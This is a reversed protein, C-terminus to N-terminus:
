LRLRARIVDLLGVTPFRVYASRGVPCSAAHSFGEPDLTVLAQAIGEERGKATAALETAGITAASGRVLLVNGSRWATEGELIIDAPTGVNILSMTADSIPVDVFLEDCDIWEVLRQGATVSAAPAVFIRFVLSGGPATVQAFSLRDLLRTQEALDDKAVDLAARAEHLATRARRTELQLEVNDDRVWSPISGNDMIFVGAQAHSNRVRAFELEASAGARELRARALRVLVEDLVAESVTQRDVLEQQRDAVRQLVDIRDDAAALASQLASIRADLEALFASALRENDQQRKQTLEAIAEQNYLAQDVQRQYRQMRNSTREVAATEELLRKNRITLIQGDAPVREGVEPLDTSIEGDIPAVAIRSWTTVSADRVLM